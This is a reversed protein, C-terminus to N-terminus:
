SIQYCREASHRAAATRTFFVGAPRADLARWDAARMPLEPWASRMREDVFMVTIPHHM